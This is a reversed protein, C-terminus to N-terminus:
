CHNDMCNLEAPKTWASFSFDNGRSYIGKILEPLSELWTSLSLAGWKLLTLTRLKALHLIATDGGNFGGICAGQTSFMEGVFQAPVKDSQNYIQDKIGAHSLQLIILNVLMRM